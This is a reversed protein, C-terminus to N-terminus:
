TWCRASRAPPATLPAAVAATVCSQSFLYRRRWSLSPTISTCRPAAGATPVNELDVQPVMQGVERREKIVPNLFLAANPEEVDCDLFLPNASNVSERDTLDQGGVAISLALNIAVTTKGTGGKGSAITIIM